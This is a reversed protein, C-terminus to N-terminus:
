VNLKFKKFVETINNEKMFAEGILFTGFGSAILLELDKSTSIGSESIPIKNKNLYKILHKSTIIDVNMNKLNRNNIGVLKSKLQNALELEKLDHVEIIVDMGLNHAYEEYEKAQEFSLCSLILLICDAGIYRSEEIQWEDIIFDKRLIPLFVEKKVTKLFNDDGQFFKKDTLISLCTAGNKEYTRAIKVPDFDTRIVGKSPSAKKIESIINIESKKLEIKKLFPRIPLPKYNKNTIHSLSSNRKKQSVEEKKYKIIDLLTVM